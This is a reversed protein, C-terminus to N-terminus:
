LFADRWFITAANTVTITNSGPSLPFWTSSPFSVAGARSVGGQYLTHNAFDITVTGGGSLGTFTLALAVGAFLPSTRTITVSSGPSAITFRPWTNRNGANTVTLSTSPGSSHEASSLIGADASVLGLLARKPRTGTVRYPLQRRFSVQTEARGTETWKVLGDFAMAETARNLRDIRANLSADLLEFIVPITFPRRGYYFSGHVGGDGEVVNYANERVEAGDLGSIGAEADIIGVYSAISNDGNITAVTGDPGTITYVADHQISM